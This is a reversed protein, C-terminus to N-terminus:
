RPAVLPDPNTLSALVHDRWRGGIFLYDRATGEITFGLRRLVAASRQNHPMYNAQIRHLRVTSFIYDIAGSLAETMYGHGQARRDLKYGLFCAQFIGRIVNSFTCWGLIPLDGGGGRAVFAFSYAAGANAEAVARARADRVAQLDFASAAMPPEWPRLFEENERNFEVCRGAHEPGAIFLTLRATHIVPLDNM